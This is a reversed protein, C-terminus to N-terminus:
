RAGNKDAREAKMAGTAREISASSPQFADVYDVKRHSPIYTDFLKTVTDFGISDLWQQAEERAFPFLTGWGAFDIALMEMAIILTREEILHFEVRRALFFSFAIAFGSFMVFWISVLSAALASAM